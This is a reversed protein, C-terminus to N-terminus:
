ANDVQTASVISDLKYPTGAYSDNAVIGHVLGSGVDTSRASKPEAAAGGIGENSVPYALEM